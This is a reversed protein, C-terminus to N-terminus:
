RGRGESDMGRGGMRGSGLLGQNRNVNLVMNVDSKYHNRHVNLVMNVDDDTLAAAFEKLKLGLLVSEASSARTHM